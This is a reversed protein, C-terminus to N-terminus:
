PEHAKCGHSMLKLVRHKLVRIIWVRVCVSLTHIDEFNVYVSSIQSNRLALTSEYPELGAGRELFLFILGVRAKGSCLLSYPPGGKM